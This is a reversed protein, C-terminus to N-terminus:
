MLEVTELLDRVFIAYMLCINWNCWYHDLKLPINRCRIMQKTHGVYARYVSSFTFPSAKRKTWAGDAVLLIWWQFWLFTFTNRFLANVFFSSSVEISSLTNWGSTNICYFSTFTLWVCCNCTEIRSIWYFRFM